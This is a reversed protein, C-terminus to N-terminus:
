SSGDYVAIKHGTTGKPQVGFYEAVDAELVTDGNTATPSAGVTIHCDADAKLRVFRTTAQLAASQTSTTFTVTQTTEAGLNGVPVTDGNADEALSAFETIWLTAM